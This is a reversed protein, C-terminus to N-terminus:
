SLKDTANILYKCGTTINLLDVFDTTQIKRKFGIKFTSKNSYFIDCHYEPHNHKEGKIRSKKYNAKDYDYRVYGDETIFLNGLFDWFTNNYNSYHDDSSDPSDFSNFFDYYSKSKFKSNRIVSLVQSILESDINRALNSYFKFKENDKSVFFPFVISFYKDKQFFFLRSMKEVKLFIKGKIDTAKITPNLLMLKISEMLIEIVMARDRVPIFFKDLLSQNLNFEYVKM